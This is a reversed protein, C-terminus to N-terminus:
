EKRANKNIIKYGQKHTRTVHKFGLKKFVEERTLPEKKSM